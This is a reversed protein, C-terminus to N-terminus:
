QRAQDQHAGTTRALTVHGSGVSELSAGAPPDQSVVFGTGEM